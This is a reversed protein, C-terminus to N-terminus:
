KKLLTIFKYDILIIKYKIKGVRASKLFVKSEMKKKM